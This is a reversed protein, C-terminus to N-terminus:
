SKQLFFQELIPAAAHSDLRDQYQRDGELIASSYREDVFYVLRSFRGKIQQGFRKARHTMEHEAGDPHFPLGVVIVSPNWQLILQEVAKFRLEENTNNIVNLAEASKTLSNGVAVGIRRAGYDFALATIPSNINSTEHM